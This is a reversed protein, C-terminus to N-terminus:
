SGLASALGGFAGTLSAADQLNFGPQINGGAMALNAAQSGAGVNINALISALQQISQSESAGEGVQLNSLNSIIQNYMNAVDAGGAQQLSSLSSTTDAVNSALRTGADYRLNCINQGAANVLGAGTTGASYRLNGINQGLTNTMGAGTTAAGLAQNGQNTRIGAVNSAGSFGRNALDSLRSYQNNFDQLYLNTARDTLDRLVNGGGLGGTAAANQTLTRIAEQKAFDAGPSSSFANFAEQQADNGLLGSYAAMLQSAKQGTDTYESFGGAAQDYLGSLEGYGTQLLDLGQQTGTQLAQESGARSLNILDLANQTGGTIASEAGSLGYEAMLLVV